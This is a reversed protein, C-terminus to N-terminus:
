LSWASVPGRRSLRVDSHAARQPAPFRRHFFLLRLCGRLVKGPFWVSAKALRLLGRSPSPLASNSDGGHAIGTETGSVAHNRTHLGGRGPRLDSFFDPATARSPLCRHPRSLFVIQADRDPCSRSDGELIPARPYPSHMGSQGLGSKGRDFGLKVWKGRHGRRSGAVPLRGLGGGPGSKGAMVILSAVIIIPPAAIAPAARAPPIPHAM